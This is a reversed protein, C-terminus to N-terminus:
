AQQLHYFGEVVKTFKEPTILFDLTCRFYNGSRGKVQGMLFKSTAARGFFWGFWELGAARDFKSEGCVAAWRASLGRKRGDSVIEARPLNPCHLHYLEILEATPCAPRKYGTSAAPATNVLVTPARTEEEPEPELEPESPQIATLKPPEGIDLPPNPGLKNIKNIADEDDAMLAIHPLPFRARKIQLRQRYRPIFGYQKGADLYLRVLDADALLQVLVPLAKQDLGARRSLKFPSVEFLGIDDATLLVTVYLWRADVPLTQVRESDLMDDRILRAVM